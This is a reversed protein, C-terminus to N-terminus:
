SCPKGMDWYPLQQHWPCDGTDAFMLSGPPLETTSAAPDAGSDTMSNGEQKRHCNIFRSSSVCQKRSTGQGHFGTRTVQLSCSQHHKRRCFAQPLLNLRMADCVHHAVSRVHTPIKSLHHRLHRRRGGESAMVPMLTTVHWLRGYWRPGRVCWAQSTLPVCQEPAKSIDCSRASNKETLHQPCQVNWGACFATVTQLRSSRNAQDCTEPRM